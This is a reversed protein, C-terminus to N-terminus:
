SFCGIHRWGSVGCAVLVVAEGALDDAMADPEIIAERQAVTVHFLDQELAADVDRMFGDALPTQFKPLVIRILQFTSAGLWAVFPMQFYDKRLQYFHTTEGRPATPIVYRIEVEGNDVLVRDILLEVLARKQEFTAETLGARVRQCFAEISSVMGALEGQRNVQGELQKQQSTLVQQKQELEQRRWQYEALPIVEVLYAETLRELQTALATQAKRLTEKRAQLEQPLWHGGQAREVAYAISEPHALLECLDQWVLDDLHDAPSYRAQCRAEPLADLRRTSRWCRYYRYGSYTTLGTCASQCQACSVLARLLYSNVKNNRSARQQNLSLKAQIADFEEQSVLAPITTV